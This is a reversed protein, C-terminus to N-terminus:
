HSTSGERNPEVCQLRLGEDASKIINMMDAELPKSGAWYSWSSCKSRVRRAMKRLALRDATLLDELISNRWGDVVAQPVFLEARAGRKRYWCGLFKFEGSFDPEFRSQSRILKFPGAPHGAFAAVLLEEIVAEKGKPVLVGVNDSWVFMPSCDPVAAGRLVDAMVIEAVLSSLASGQPIGRRQGEKIIADLKERVAGTERTRIVMGGLHLHNRITEASLPINAELWSHSIAGYFNQVDFQLFTYSGGQEELAQKLHKRVAAPGRRDPGKALLFQTPHFDAFPSLYISLLTQRAYDTWHFVTIPRYSGDRKRKGHLYAQAPSSFSAVSPLASFVAVLRQRRRREREESPLTSPCKIEKKVALFLVFLRSAVQECHARAARKANRLSGRQVLKTIKSRQSRVVNKCHSRLANEEAVTLSSPDLAGPERLLSIIQRPTRCSLHGRSCGSSPRPSNESGSSYNSFSGELVM